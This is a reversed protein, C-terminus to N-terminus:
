GKNDQAESEWMALATNPAVEAMKDTFAHLLNKSMRRGLAALSEKGQRQSLANKSRGANTIWLEWHVMGEIDFIAIDPQSDNLIKATSNIDNELLCGNYGVDIIDSCGTAPSNCKSLVTLRFDVAQRWKQATKM